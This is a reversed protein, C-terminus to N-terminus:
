MRQCHTGDMDCIEDPYRCNSGNMDCTQRTDRCNKGNMDCMTYAMGPSSILMLVSLVIIKM